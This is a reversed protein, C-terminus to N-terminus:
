LPMSTPIFNMGFCTTLGLDKLQEYLNNERAEEMLKQNRTYNIVPHAHTDALRRM